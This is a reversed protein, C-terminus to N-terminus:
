KTMEKKCMAVYTSAGASTMSLHEVFTDIMQQRPPHINGSQLYHQKYLDIAQERKTPGNTNRPKRERKVTTKIVTKKERKRPKSEGIFGKPKDIKTFTGDDEPVGIISGANTTFNIRGDKHYNVRGVYSFAGEEDACEWKIFDGKSFTM